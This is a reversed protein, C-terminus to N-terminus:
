HSELEVVVREFKRSKLDEPDIWFNVQGCDGLRLDIADDDALQLLCLQEEGSPSGNGQIQTVHGLMQHIRPSTRLVRHEGENRWKQDYPLHYSALANYYLDPILSAVEPSSGAYAIASLIGRTFSDAIENSHLKTESTDSCLEIIWNRFESRDREGPASDFGIEAARSVWRLVDEGVDTSDRRRLRCHGIMRAIRDMMIGAQPFDKQYGLWTVPFPLSYGPDWDARSNMKPMLGTAAVVAALRRQSIMRSYLDDYPDDPIEPPSLDDPWTDIVRAVLPWQIHITPGDEGPLLWQPSHHPGDDAYVSLIPQIGAPPQRSLTADPVDEAYLVRTLNHPDDIWLQEEANVVFFYLMGTVPMRPDVRPLETCDIQALFHMPTAKGDIEGIPWELGDPLQPLGGLRSRVGSGSAPPYCRQLMIGSQRHKAIFANIEAEADLNRTARKPAFTHTSEHM